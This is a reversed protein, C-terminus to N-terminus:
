VTVSGSMDECHFLKVLSCSLVLMLVNFVKMIIIIMSHSLINNRFHVLSM